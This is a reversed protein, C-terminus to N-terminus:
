TSFIGPSLTHTHRHVTRTHLPFEFLSDTIHDDLFSSTVFSLSPLTFVIRRTTQFSSVLSHCWRTLPAVEDVPLLLLLLPPPPLGSSYAGGHKSLLYNWIPGLLSTFRLYCERRQLGGFVNRARRGSVELSIRAPNGAAVSKRERM